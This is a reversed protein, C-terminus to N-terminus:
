AVTSIWKSNTNKRQGVSSKRFSFAQGFGLIQERKIKHSQRCGWIFLYSTRCTWLWCLSSFNRWVHGMVRKVEYKGLVSFESKSTVRWAVQSKKSFIQNCKNFTSTNHINMNVPDYIALGRIVVFCWQFVLFFTFQFCRTSERGLFDSMLKHDDRSKTGTTRNRDGSRSTQKVVNLVIKKERKSWVGRARINYQQIQNVLNLEYTSFIVSVDTFQKFTTPSHM